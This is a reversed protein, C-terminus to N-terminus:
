VRLLVVIDSDLLVIREWRRVMRENQVDDKKLGAVYGTYIWLFNVM